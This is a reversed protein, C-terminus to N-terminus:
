PRYILCSVFSRSLEHQTIQPQRRKRLLLMIHSLYPVGPRSSVSKYTASRSKFTNRKKGTSHKVIARSTALLIHIQEPRHLIFFHQGKQYWTWKGPEDSLDKIEVPRYFVIMSYKNIKKLMWVNLETGTSTGLKKRGDWWSSADILTMRNAGEKEWDVLSGTLIQWWSWKM